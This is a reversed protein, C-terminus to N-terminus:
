SPSVGRYICEGWSKGRSCGTAGFDQAQLSRERRAVLRQKLNGKHQVDSLVWKGHLHCM